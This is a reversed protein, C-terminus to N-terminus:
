TIGYAKCRSKLTVYAFTLSVPHITHLRSVKAAALALCRVNVL